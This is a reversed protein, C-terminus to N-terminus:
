ITCNIINTVGQSVSIKAEWNFKKLLSIDAKSFMIENDRYQLAGFKLKSPSNILTKAIKVFEEISISEGTGVDISSFKNEIFNINLLVTEFASIVDDIYIFDRLQKGPTLDIIPKSQQLQEIIWAVFKNKNDGPGYMHFIKLNIVKTVYNLQILWEICHKKSLSYESLYTSKNEPSNFFSDINLFAKVKYLQAIEILRVPLLINTQIINSSLEKNHGYLTAAHIIFDIKNDEFIGELSDESISYIKFNAEAIRFLNNRNQELGLVKFNQSLKLALRNGLFGNIGTILITQMSNGIM